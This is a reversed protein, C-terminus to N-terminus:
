DLHDLLRAVIADSIAAPVSAVPALATVPPREHPILLEVLRTPDYTSYWCCQLRPLTGREVNASASWNAVM